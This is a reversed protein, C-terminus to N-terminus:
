AHKAKLEAGMRAAEETTKTSPHLLNSVLSFPEGGDPGAILGDFELIVHNGEAYRLRCATVQVRDGAAASFADRLDTVGPM